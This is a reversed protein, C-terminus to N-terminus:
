ENIKTNLMLDNLIMEEELSWFDKEPEPAVGGPPHFNQLVHILADCPRVQNLYAGEGKSPSGTVMGSPLLYEVQAFTTKKPKFLRTLLDVRDDMVRVTGVRQDGQPAKLSSDIGRVGTLASFITSKGAQPMGIIGLRMARCGILGNEYLM